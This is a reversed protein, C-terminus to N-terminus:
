LFPPPREAERTVRTLQALEAWRQAMAAGQPSGACCRAEGAPAASRSGRARTGPSSVPAGRHPAVPSGHDGASPAAGAVHGGARAAGTYVGGLQALEAWRQAM